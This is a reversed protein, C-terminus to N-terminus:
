ISDALSNIVVGSPLKPFFYTSKRPLRVGAGVVQQFVDMPVARLFLAMHAKREAMMQLVAQGDHLYEVYTSLDDGMIPRLIVAELIWADIERLSPIADQPVYRDVLDPNGVTLLFPGEGGPGVLAMAPHDIGEQAVLREIAEPSGADLSAPQTFFVQQIRDRIQVFLPPPLEKLVRHYPLLLLGPDDFSTLSMMIYAAADNGAQDRYTIATEYRHHGDAIYVPQSAVAQNIALIQDPEVIRWLAYQQGDDGAFEAEPMKAMTRNRVSAVTKADDRILGMIPSFNAQCAEMLALRDQKPGEATNEHPLVGSGFHELKLAGLLSYRELTAGQFIFQQRLLYYGPDEDQLLVKEELWQQYHGTANSYREPAPTDHTEALELRVMNHPSRGLLDREQALSIVDYPPCILSDLPGAVASNYRIGRFPRFDAM